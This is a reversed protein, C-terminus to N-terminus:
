QMPSIYKIVAMLFLNLITTVLYLAAVGRDALTVAGGECGTEAKRDAPSDSGERQHCTQIHVPASSRRLHSCRDYHHRVVAGRYTVRDRFFFSGGVPVPVSGSGCQEPFSGPHGCIHFRDKNCLLRNDPWFSRGALNMIDFHFLGFLIAHHCCGQLAADKM